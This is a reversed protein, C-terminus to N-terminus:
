TEVPNTEAPLDVLCVVISDVHKLLPFFPIVHLRLLDFERRVGMTHVLGGRRRRNQGWTCRAQRSFDAFVQM